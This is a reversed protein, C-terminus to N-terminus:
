CRNWEKPSAYRSDRRDLILIASSLQPIQFYEVFYQLNSLFISGNIYLFQANKVVQRKLPLGEKLGTVTKAAKVILAIAFSDEVYAHLSKVTKEKKPLFEV